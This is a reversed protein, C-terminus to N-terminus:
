LDEALRGIMAGIKIRTRRYIAAARRSFWWTLFIMLPIVSFSLLALRANIAVMIGVTGLLILSDGIMTVVGSTLLENIVSVDNVVYSILRGTDEHDYFPMPLRQMHAFLRERMDRLVSEGLRGLLLEQRASALAGMAYTAMLGLSVASLGGLNKRGIYDDIASKVLYPGALQAASAVVMMVLAWILNRLYPKVFATLRFLVRWNLGRAEYDSHYGRLMGHPGGRIGASMFGM